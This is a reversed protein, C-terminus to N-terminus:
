KRNKSLEYLKNQYKGINEIEKLKKYYKVNLVSNPSTSIKKPVRMREDKILKGDKWHQISVGFIVGRTDKFYKKKIGTFGSM